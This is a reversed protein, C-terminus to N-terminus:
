NSSIQQALTEAAALASLRMQAADAWDQLAAKAAEPLTDIEALADTLRGDKAAAGVRSLVADAGDGEQPELSRVGFQSKLFGSVGASEEGGAARAAALAARSADPFDAQLAVMTAVGTEAAATLDAPVDGVIAAVDSLAGSFPTGSELAAILRSASARAAAREAEALAQKELTSAEQRAADIQATAEAQVRAIEERLSAVEAMVETSPDFTSLDVLPRDELAAIRAEAATLASTMDASTADVSSQVEAIATPDLLQAEVEALKATLTEIREAQRANEASLADTITTDPTVPWGDPVYQAVGFGLAAALGGGLLASFGGRKVPAAAPPTEPTAEVVAADPDKVTDVTAEPAQPTEDAAPIDPDATTEAGEDKADTDAAVEGEPTEVPAPEEAPDPAQATTNDATQAVPEPAVVEADEIAATEAAKASPKQSKAASSKSRSKPSKAVIPVENVLSLVPSM